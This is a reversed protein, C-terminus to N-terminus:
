CRAMRDCSPWGKAYLYPTGTCGVLPDVSVLSASPDYYRYNLYSLYPMAEESAEGPSM